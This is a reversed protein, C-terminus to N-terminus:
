DSEIFERLMSNVRDWTYSSPKKSVTVIIKDGEIKYSGKVTMDGLLPLKLGGSFTGKELDGVFHVFKQAAKMKILELKQAPDGRLGYEFKMVMGGKWIAKGEMHAKALGAEAIGDRLVSIATCFPLDM